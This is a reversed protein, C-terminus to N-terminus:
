LPFQFSTTRPPQLIPSASPIISVRPRTAIISAESAM